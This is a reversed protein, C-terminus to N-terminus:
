KEEAPAPLLLRDGVALGALVEVETATRRGLRPEVTEVGLLRKRRALPRDGTADIAALPAILIGTAREREIEARFRMGPRMREADTQELELEARVIRAPNNPAQRQVATGVRRVVARYPHDPHADLRITAAQGERVRGADAEPVEAVGRLRTLDPISLIREARWASDGVKKKEGRWNTVYVVTGDRPSAVRMAAIARELATVKERALDRRHALQAREARSREALATLQRGLHGVERESVELDERAKALDRHAALDPPVEAKLRAKRLKAEAEALRLELDLRELELDAGRKELEQRAQEARGREEELRRELQSTDFGLVPQGAKVESGEPALFAVKFDWVDAVLPPGLDASEIAELLGIAEITLVLDGREVRALPEGGEEGPVLAAFAAWGLAAVLAAAGATWAARRTM